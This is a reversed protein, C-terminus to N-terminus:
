AVENLLALETTLRKRDLADRRRQLAREVTTFVHAPDLPKPLFAFVELEFSELASQLRRDASIVITEVASDRARLHKILDIGSAEGLQLDVVAVAIRQAAAAAEADEASRVSLVQVGRQEAVHTLLGLVFPDDDVILIPANM